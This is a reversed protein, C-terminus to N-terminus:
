LKDMEEATLKDLAEKDIRGVKYVTIVDNLPKTEYYKKETSDYSIITDTESVMLPVERESEFNYLAPWAFIKGNIVYIIWLVDSGSTYRMKYLPYKEATQGTIEAAEDSYGGNEDYNTTILDTDFGREDLKQVIESGNLMGATDAPTVSVIETYKGFYEEANKPQDEEPFSIEDEDCSLESTDETSNEERSILNTQIDAMSGDNKSKKKSSSCGSLFVVCALVAAFMSLITKKM